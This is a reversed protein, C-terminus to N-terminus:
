LVTVLRGGWGGGTVVGGGWGLVQYRVQCSMFWGTGLVWKTGLAQVAPWCAKVPM